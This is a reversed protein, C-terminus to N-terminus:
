ISILKAMWMCNGFSFIIMEPDVILHIIWAVQLKTKCLHFVIGKHHFSEGTLFSSSFPQCFSMCTKTWALIKTRLFFKKQSSSIHGGPHLQKDSFKVTKLRIRPIWTTSPSFWSGLATRQCVCFLYIFTIKCILFVAKFRNQSPKSKPFGDPSHVASTSALTVM